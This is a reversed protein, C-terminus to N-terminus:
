VAVAVGARWGEAVRRVEGLFRRSEIPRTEDNEYFPNCVLQIYATQLAKFM